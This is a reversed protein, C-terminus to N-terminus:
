HGVVATSTDAKRFFVFRGIGRDLVYDRDIAAKLVAIPEEPRIDSMCFFQGPEGPILTELVIWRPPKDRFIAEVERSWRDALPGGKKFRLFAYNALPTPMRRDALSNIMMHSSFSWVTENATTTSRAFDAAKVVDDFSRSRLVDEYGGRGLYWNVQPAYEKSAKMALGSIVMIAPFSLVSFRLRADPIRSSLRIVEALYFSCLLTMPALLGGFHYGFGKRQTFTSILVTAATAGLMALPAKRSESMWCVLGALAMVMYWQWSRAAVSIISEVVGQSDLRGIYNMKSYTITMEFWDGLSGTAWGALAVSGLAAAGVAAMIAIDSILERVGQRRFPLAAVLMLPASALFTPKLLTAAAIMASSAVLWARPGGEVRRLYTLGALLVFHTALLDRQGSMWYGSTTYSILYFGFFLAGLLDGFHRRLLLPVSASFAVLLLYDLMRYSWSHNGFVAMSAIHLLPEGPMNVDGANRYLCGEDLASWAMFDYLEQDPNPPMPVYLLGVLIMEVILAYPVIQRAIRGLSWSPM